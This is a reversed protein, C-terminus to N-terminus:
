GHPRRSHEPLPRTMLRQRKTQHTLKLAQLVVHPATMPVHANGRTSGFAVHGDRLGIACGGHRYESDRKSNM